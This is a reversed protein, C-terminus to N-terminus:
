KELRGALSSKSQDSRSHKELADACPSCLLLRFERHGGVIPGDGISVLAFAGEGPRNPCEVNACSNQLRIKM